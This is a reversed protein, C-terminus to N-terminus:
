LTSSAATSNTHSPQIIYFTMKMDFWVITSTSTANHNLKPHLWELLLGADSILELSIVNFKMMLRTIMKSYHSQRKMKHNLQLVQSTIIKYYGGKGRLHNVIYVTQSVSLVHLITKDM